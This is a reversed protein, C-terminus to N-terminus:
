RVGATHFIYLTLLANLLISYILAGLRVQMTGRTFARPLDTTAVYMPTYSSAAPAYQGLWVVGLLDPVSRRAVSM